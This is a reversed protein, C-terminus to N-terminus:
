RWRLCFATLASDNPLDITMGTVEGNVTGLWDKLEDYHHGWFLIDTMVVCHAYESKISEVVVFRNTKWNKLIDEGVTYKSM